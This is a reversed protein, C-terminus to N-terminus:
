RSFEVRPLEFDSGDYDPACQIFEEASVGRELLYRQVQRSRRQALGQLEEFIEVPPTRYFNERVKRSGNMGPTSGPYLTMWDRANAIGCIGPRAEPKEELTEVVENLHQRANASLEASGPSFEITDLFVLTRFRTWARSALTYFGVPSFYSFLAELIAQQLLDSFIYSFSFTPDYLDGTVPMQFNVNRDRDEM